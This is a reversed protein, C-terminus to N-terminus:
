KLECKSLVCLLVDISFKLVWKPILTDERIPRNLIKPNVFRELSIRAQKLQGELSLREKTKAAVKQANEKSKAKLQAAMIKMKEQTKMETVGQSNQNTNSNMAQDNNMDSDPNIAHAMPTQSTKNKPYFASFFTTVGSFINQIKQLELRKIYKRNHHTNCM